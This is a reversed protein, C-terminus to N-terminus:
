VHIVFYNISVNEESFPMQISPGLRLSGRNPHRRFDTCNSLVKDQISSWIISINKETNEKLQM